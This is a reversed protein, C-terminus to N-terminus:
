GLLETFDYVTNEGEEKVLELEKDIDKVFDIQSLLTRASVLGRLAVLSSYKTALDVPINREFTFQVDRWIAEGNVLSLFDCILEIRKQLAKIMHKEIVGANNEMGLLKFEMAVGSATGFADDSFDACNSILYINKKLNNLINEIQVDNIDKTLYSVSGADPIIICKNRRMDILDETEVNDMGSMVLYADAFTDFDDIEGSLVSNYADNLGMVQAFISSGLDLIVVPIQNFYNVTEDM